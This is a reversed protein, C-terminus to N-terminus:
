EEGRNRKKKKKKKPAEEGSGGEANRKGRTEITAALEAKLQARRERVGIREEAIVGKLYQAAERKENFTLESVAAKFAKNM